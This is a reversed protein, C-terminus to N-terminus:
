RWENLPDPASSKMDAWHKRVYVNSDTVGHKQELLECALKIGNGGYRLVGYCCLTQM